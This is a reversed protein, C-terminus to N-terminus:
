VLALDQPAASPFITAMQAQTLGYARQLVGGILGRYDNLVPLDRDQFLNAQTV